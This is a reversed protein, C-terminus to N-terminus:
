KSDNYWEIFEIVYGYLTEITENFLSIENFTTYFEMLMDEYEEDTNSEIEDQLKTIISCVKEVVPMLWDWSIHYEFEEIFEDETLCSLEYIDEPTELEGNITMFTGILINGELKDKSKM